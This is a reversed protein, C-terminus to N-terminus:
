CGWANGGQRRTPTNDYGGARRQWHHIKVKREKRLSTIMLADLVFFFTFFNLLLSIVPLM